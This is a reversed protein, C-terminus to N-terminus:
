FGATYGAASDDYHWASGGFNVRLSTAQPNGNRIAPFYPAVLGAAGGLSYAGYTGSPTRFTIEGTDADWMVSVVEGNVMGPVVGGIYSVSGFGVDLRVPIDNGDTLAGGAAWTADGIGIRIGGTGGGIADFVQVEFKHKGTSAHADTTVVAGTTSPASFGLQDSDLVAGPSHATTSLLTGSAIAPAGQPKKPTLLTRRVGFYM